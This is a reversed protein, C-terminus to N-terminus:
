SITPVNSIDLIGAHHERHCNSCLVVCKVIEKKISQKIETIPVKSNFYVRYNIFDSVTKEKQAPDLHHLDLVKVCRNYGCVGCETKFSNIFDKLENLYDYRKQVSLLTKQYVNYCPKCRSRYKWNGSTTKGEHSFNDLPLFQKCEKCLLGDRDEKLRWNARKIKPM